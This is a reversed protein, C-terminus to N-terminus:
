HDRARGAADPHVGKVDGPVPVKAVRFEPAKRHRSRVEALCAAGDKWKSPLDRNPLQNHHRYPSQEGTKEMKSKGPNGSETIGKETVWVVFRDVLLM